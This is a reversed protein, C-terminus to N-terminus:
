QARHRTADSLAAHLGAALGELADRDSDVTGAATHTEGMRLLADILVFDVSLRTRYAQTTTALADALRGADADARPAHGPMQGRRRRRGARRRRDALERGAKRIM